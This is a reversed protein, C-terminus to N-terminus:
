LKLLLGKGSLDGFTRTGKQANGAQIRAAMSELEEWTKPPARYGYQQLLDIRYFLLGTDMNYPLAVLRGNVTNNAILEPFHAAIEQGSVYPKLDVLHDALVTPWIVDVAYVDPVTAAGELLKRWTALQEVASEPAPLVEVRIGSETTFLRLEENLRDRAEKNVWGQDILTLV